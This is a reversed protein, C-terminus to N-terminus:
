ITEKSIVSVKFERKCCGCQWVELYERNAYNRTVQIQKDSTISEKEWSTESFTSVVGMDTESVKLHFNTTRRAKCDKHTCARTNALWCFGWFGLLLVWVIFMLVGNVPDYDWDTSAVALAIPFWILLLTIIFHRKLNSTSIIKKSDFEKFAETNPFNKYRFKPGVFQAQVRKLFNDLNELLKQKNETMEM